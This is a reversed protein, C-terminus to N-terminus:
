FRYDRCGDGQPSGVSFESLSVDVTSGVVTPTPWLSVSTGTVSHLGSVDVSIAEEEGSSVSCNLMITPSAETSDMAVCASGGIAVHLSEGAETPPLIDQSFDLRVKGECLTIMRLVPLDDATFRGVVRTADGDQSPAWTYTMDTVGSPLEAHVTNWGVPLAEDLHLRIFTRALGPNLTGQPETELTTHIALERGSSDVISLNERLSSVVNDVNAGGTVHLVLEIDEPVVLSALDPPNLALAPLPQPSSDSPQLQDPETAADSQVDEFAADSSGEVTRAADSCAGSLVLASIM